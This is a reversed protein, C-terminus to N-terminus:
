GVTLTGTMTTPHVDCQFYYTGAELAPVSYDVTTPATIIEGAFLEEGGKEDYIGVNHMQGTDQNLFEIVTEEDAPLSLEDSAFGTGSAGVPATVTADPEEGTPSETPSPSETTPSAKGGPEEQGGCAAAMLALAGVLAVKVLRTRM